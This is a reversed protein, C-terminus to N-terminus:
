TPSSKHHDFSTFKRHESFSASKKPLLKALISEELNKKSYCFSFFFEMAPRCTRGKFYFVPSFIRREQPRQKRVIANKKRM